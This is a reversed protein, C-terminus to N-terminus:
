LKKFKAYMRVNATAIPSVLKFGYREVLNRLTEETYEKYHYKDRVQSGGLAPPTAIYLYGGTKLIRVVRSLAKEPFQLHELVDGMFANDFYGFYPCRINYISLLKVDVGHGTALDVAMSNDDIGMAGQILSTILGDGAGIDVTKGKGIWDKVFNSHAVYPDTGEKYLRWHYDGLDRYKNFEM